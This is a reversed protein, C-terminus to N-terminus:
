SADQAEEIDLVVFKDPDMPKNSGISRNKLIKNMSKKKNSVYSNTQGM